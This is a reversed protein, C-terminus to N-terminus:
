TLAVFHIIEEEWPLVDELGADGVIIHQEFQLLWDRPGSIEHGEALVKTLYPLLLQSDEAIWFGVVVFRGGELPFFKLDMLESCRLCPPDPLYFLLLGFNLVLNRSAGALAPGGEDEVVVSLVLYNPNM